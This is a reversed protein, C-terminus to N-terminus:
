AAPRLQAADCIQDIAADVAALAQRLPRPIDDPNDELAQSGPRLVRIYTKSFFLAAKMGYTTVRYRHTGEVRVVLGKLRLRRLDYTMKGPTYDAIPVGTLAAVKSRLDRNRFDAAVLAFHALAQLLAMARPDGFRLASTRQEQEVTPRQLRDFAEQSLACNQGIRELELLKRDVTAGVKRLYGFNELSKNAGFDNPNNVTLEVRGGRGNKFYQKLDSNKYSVHLSPEVGNTIV